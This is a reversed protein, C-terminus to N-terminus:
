PNTKKWKAPSYTKLWTPFTIPWGSNVAIIPPMAPETKVHIVRIFHGAL